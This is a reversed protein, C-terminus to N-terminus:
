DGITRKVLISILLGTMLFGISAEISVLIRGIVSTAQIDCGATTFTMISFYLSNWFGAKNLSGPFITYGLAFFLITGGCWAFFRPFSRGYDCTLWLAFAVRPYKNKLSAIRQQGFAFDKLQEALTFDVANLRVGTFSTRSDFSANDLLVDQMKAWNLNTGKLNVESLYSGTLDAYDLRANELDACFLDVKSLDVSTLIERSLPIGRLDTQGYFEGVLSDLRSREFHNTKLNTLIYQGEKTAWRQRLQERSLCALTSFDPDGKQVDSGPSVFFDQTIKNAQM